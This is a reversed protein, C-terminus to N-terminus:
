QPFEVAMSTIANFNECHENFDKCPPLKYFHENKSTTVLYYNFFPNQISEWQFLNFMAKTRRVTISVNYISM